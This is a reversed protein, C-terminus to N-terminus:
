EGSAEAANALVVLAVVITSILLLYNLTM